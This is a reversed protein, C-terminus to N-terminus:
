SPASEEGKESRLSLSWEIIALEVDLTIEEFFLRFSESGDVVVLQHVM